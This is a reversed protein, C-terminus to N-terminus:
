AEEDIGLERRVEPFEDLEAEFEDVSFDAVVFEGYEFTPTLTQGSVDVMRDMAARSRTVDKIDLDIGHQEFYSRAARCWPCGPKIFLIPKM